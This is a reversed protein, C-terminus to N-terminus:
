IMSRHLHDSFSDTQQPTSSDAVLFTCRQGRYGSSPQRHQPRGYRLGARTLRARPSGNGGNVTTASVNYTAHRGHDISHINQTCNRRGPVSPRRQPTLPPPTPPAATGPLNNLTATTQLGASDRITFTLPNVCTGNTIATFPLGAAGVISNVITVATPFTAAVTYPPTGGYIFYDIRFNTSCTNTYPGTITADSPVVSLVASGNITQM